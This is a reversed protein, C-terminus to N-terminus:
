AAAVPTRLPRAATHPRVLGRLLCDWAGITADFAGAVSRRAAAGMRDTDCAALAVIADALARPNEPQTLMGWAADVQEILGDTRTALIARGACRAEQAVLGFAEWRSPIAVADIGALYGALDSVAEGVTVHPLDRAAAVLAHHDPGLGRMDLRAVSPPVLRMAEILVDFGKQPAYRGYAALRLPGDARRAPPVAALSSLDRGHPVVALKPGAAIRADLLWQRQARSVPVVRNCLAYNLSLMARFRRRDPVLLSEYAETYSHEVLVLPTRGLRVRLAALYPLKAWNVTFHIVVVDANPLPPLGRGAQVAIMEHLYGDSLGRIIDATSRTVGGLRVDDLLHAVRIM